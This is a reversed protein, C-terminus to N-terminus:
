VPKVLFTKPFQPRITYIAQNAKTIDDFIGFVTPGSGSMTANAAGAGSLLRKIEAVEPLRTVSEFVNGAPRATETREPWEMGDFRRFAEATSVAAPPTVLVIHCDPLPPLPTLIEGRGEALCVGGRLCYPVDSGLELALEQLPPRQNDTEGLSHGDARAAAWEDLARLVAAADSSGGGLGASVPIRKEIHVHCSWGRFGAANMFLRAARAALNQGEVGEAFATFTEKGPECPSLTLTLDDCLSVSAMITRLNHYGDGRRGTIELALNIKAPAKAALLTKM